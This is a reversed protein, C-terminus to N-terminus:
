KNNKYFDLLEKRFERIEMKLEKVDDKTAVEHSLQKFDEEIILIRTKTAFNFHAYGVLSVGLGICYIAWKIENKM